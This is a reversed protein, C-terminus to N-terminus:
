FRVAVRSYLLAISRFGTSALTPQAVRPTRVRTAPLGQILMFSACTVINTPTTPATAAQLTVATPGSPPNPLLEPEPLLEPLLELLEPPVALLPRPLLEVPEPLLEPPLEVLEPPLLEVLLEPPLEVLEPLLLEVDPLLEPLVDLPPLSPLASSLGEPSAAVVHGSLVGKVAVVYTSAVL